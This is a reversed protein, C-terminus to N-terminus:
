RLSVSVFRSPETLHISVFKSNYAGSLFQDLFSRLMETIGEKPIYLLENDWAIRKQPGKQVNRIKLLSNAPTSSPNGKCLSKSGDVSFCTFTGSLSNHELNRQRFMRKKREEEEMMLKLSDVSSGIDANVQEKSGKNSARAILGPDRGLFLYHYIEMLLLNEEKLYGSPEDMHQTLVLILDMVNEQFMLELFSDALFLLHTAEGSAKQPLTIEKIALINRFLTLVLQVLKWDDETFLTRELRDLPDELLSVIVTVAVNRTLAAKLDWLYEIQQAVDESSPEVPMTLFVLVKVATIVLNRDTQYNEIIPVLDRSAIKWRCVQKFVERRQPDDRRLFRQLDKLNDLCHDSKVYGIVAGDDDEKAAGLGACTLSLVASDM